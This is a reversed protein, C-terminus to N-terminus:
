LNLLKGPNIKVMQDIEQDSFGFDILQEIYIRLGDVPEPNEPQGFDSTLVTTTVGVERIRKAMEEM